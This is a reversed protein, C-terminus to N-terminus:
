KDSPVWAQEKTLDRERMYLDMALARVLEPGFGLCNQMEKCETKLQELESALMAPPRGIPEYVDRLDEMEKRSEYVTALMQVTDPKKRMAKRYDRTPGLIFYRKEESIYREVTRVNVDHGLEHKIKEVFQRPNRFGAHKGKVDWLHIFSKYIQRIIPNRCM